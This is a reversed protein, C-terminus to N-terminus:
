NAWLPRCEDVSSEVQRGDVEVVASAAPMCLQVPGFEGDPRLGYGYYAGPPLDAEDIAAMSNTLDILEALTHGELTAGGADSVVVPQNLARITEEDAITEGGTGSDDGHTHSTLGDDHSHSGAEREDSVPSEAQKPTSPDVDADNGVAATVGVASLLGASTALALIAFRRVITKERM